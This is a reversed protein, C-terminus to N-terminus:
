WEIANELAKKEKEIALMVLERDKESFAVKLKKDSAQHTSAYYLIRIYTEIDSIKPLEEHIILMCDEEIYDICGLVDNLADWNHGFYFPFWCSYFLNMFLRERTNIDKRLRVIFENNTINIIFHKDFFLINENLM